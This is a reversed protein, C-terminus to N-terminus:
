SNDVIFQKMDRPLPAKIQMNKKLDPHYFRITRSHLASRIFELKEVLVDSYGSKVYELYFHEDQGYIKDGVIPLNVHKLHVRIQHQRGTIPIAKVLTYSGFSYIKKFGTKAEEGSEPLPIRKKRVSLTESYGLPVDVTFADEVATGHVIALYSKTVTHFKTQILGATRANKGFLVIGSTERDIRHLTYLKIKYDNELFSLLTNKFFIGSPHVPLNAPKNVAMLFDDEYLISYDNSVEPEFREEGEYIICDRPKIIKHHNLIIKGNVSINGLNIENRWKTRSQYAFREALYKDLRTPITDSYVESETLQRM